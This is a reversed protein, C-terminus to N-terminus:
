MYLFLIQRINFEQITTKHPIKDLMKFIDDFLINKMKRIIPQSCVKYDKKIGILM